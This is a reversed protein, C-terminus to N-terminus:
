TLCGVRYTVNETRRDTTRWIEPIMWWTIIIKPVSTYFSPIELGNKTKKKKEFNQPTFPCFIVWFSLFNNRDREM